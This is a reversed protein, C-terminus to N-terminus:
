AELTKEEKYVQGDVSLNRTITGKRIAKERLEVPDTIGKPVSIEKINITHNVSIEDFKPYDFFLDEIVEKNDTKLTCFDAKPEEDGAKTKPKGSKPAKAKIKLQYGPVKYSLGFFAKPMEEMVKLLEGVSVETNIIAQKVGAFQKIKEYPIGLSEKINQTTVIVGTIIIKTEGRVKELGKKVLYSAYEASTKINWEKGNKMKKGILLYRSEFIGRSFKIFERHVEEDNVGVFVKKITSQMRVIIYSCKYIRGDKKKLIVESILKELSEAKTIIATSKM